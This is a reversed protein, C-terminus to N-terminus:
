YENNDGNEFLDLGIDALNKVKVLGVYNVSCNIQKYYNCTEYITELIKREEDLKEKLKLNEEKIKKIKLLIGM